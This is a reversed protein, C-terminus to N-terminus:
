HNKTAAQGMGLSRGFILPYGLVWRIIRLFPGDLEKLKKLSELSNDTNGKALFSNTFFQM